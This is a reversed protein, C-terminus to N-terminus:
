LKEMIFEPSSQFIEMYVQKMIELARDKESDLVIVSDHITFPVIGAEILKKSIKQIFIDSEIRQLCLAFKNHRQRKLNYIISHITPYM